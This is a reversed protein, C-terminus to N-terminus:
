VEPLRESGAWQPRPVAWEEQEIWFIKGFGAIYRVRDPMPVSYRSAIVLSRIAIVLDCHDIDFSWHNPVQSMSRAGVM